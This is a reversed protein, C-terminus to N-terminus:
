QWSCCRRSSRMLAPRPPSSPTSTSPCANGAPALWVRARFRKAAAAWRGAISRLRAELRDAEQDLALAERRLSARRQAEPSAADPVRHERGEHDRVTRWPVAIEDAERDGSLTYLLAMKRANEIARAYVGEIQPWRKQDSVIERELEEDPKNFEEENSIAYGEGKSFSLFHYPKGHRGRKYCLLEKQIVPSGKIEGIELSYTVLRETGTIEMRYKLEIQITDKQPDCGRSLM